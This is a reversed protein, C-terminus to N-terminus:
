AKDAYLGQEQIYEIVPDPVLYKISYGQDLNERVMSSSVTNSIRLPVVNINSKFQTMIESKAITEDTSTGEREIVVTGFHGFIETLHEPLWLNPVLVSELLDAGCLLKVHISKSGLEHSLKLEDNLHDSYINLVDRVRSWGDAEIEYSSVNLWDSSDTALQAMKLRHQGAALGKKKYEDNVPSLFGGVVEYNSNRHLYDRAEEFIRLHMMTVPSYSGCAILVLPDKDKHVPKAVKSVPIQSSLSSMSRCVRLNLGVVAVAAPKCNFPILHSRFLRNM